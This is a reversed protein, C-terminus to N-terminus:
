QVIYITKIGELIVSRMKQANLKKRLDLRNLEKAQNITMGYYDEFQAVDNGMMGLIQEIRADLEAEVQEDPVEVSDIRAHHVLLNTVMLDELITCKGGEPVAKKEKAIAIRESVESHLVFEDGVKAIVKDLVVPNQQGFATNMGMVLVLVALWVRM